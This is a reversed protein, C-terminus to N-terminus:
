IERILKQLFALNYCKRKEDEIFNETPAGEQNKLFFVSM